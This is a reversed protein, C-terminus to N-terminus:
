AASSGITRRLYSAIERIFGQVSQEAIKHMAVSDIAQGVVGLPPTYTGTLALQTETPTLAYISLTGTMVPFLQPKNAARWAFAINTAPKDARAGSQGEDIGQIEIAIEAGLELAGLKARLEPNAHEGAHTAERFMATPNALVAARVAEYPHNVYDYCRLEQTM